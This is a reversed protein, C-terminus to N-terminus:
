HVKTKGSWVYGNPGTIDRGYSNSVQERSGVFMFCTAKFVYYALGQM